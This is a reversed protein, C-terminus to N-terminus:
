TLVFIHCSKAPTSLSSLQAKPAYQCDQGEHPRYLNILFQVPMLSSYSLYVLEFLSLAEEYPGVFDEAWSAYALGVTKCDIFVVVVVNM